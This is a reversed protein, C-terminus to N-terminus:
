LLPFGGLQTYLGMPGTMPGRAYIDCRSIKGDRFSVFLDTPDNAVCKGTPAIEECPGFSYPKGTHTGTLVNNAVLVQGSSTMSLTHCRFKLDPFSAWMSSMEAICDDLRTEHIFQGEQDYFYWMCDETHVKRLGRIDHSNMKKFSKRVVGLKSLDQPESPKLVSDLSDTGSSGEVREV